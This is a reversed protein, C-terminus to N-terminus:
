LCIEEIAKQIMGDQNEKASTEMYFLGEDKAYKEGVQANIEIEDRLDKKNGLLILKIDTNAFEKVERMWNKVNEFSARNTKDYVLVCGDAKKYFGSAM